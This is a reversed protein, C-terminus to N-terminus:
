SAAGSSLSIPVPTASCGLAIRTSLIIPTSSVTRRTAPRESHDVVCLQRVPRTIELILRSWCAAVNPSRPRPAQWAIVTTVRGM